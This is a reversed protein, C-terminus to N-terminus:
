PHELWWRVLRVRKDDFGDLRRQRKKVLQPEFSGERDRSVEIDFQGTDSQVSKRGKGNRRNSGRAEDHAAYGLHEALEAELAKKVLKKQLQKLLGGDGLIEKPDSYDKLPKDLLADEKSKIKTRTM